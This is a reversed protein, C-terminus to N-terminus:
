QGWRTDETNRVTKTDALTVTDRPSVMYQVLTELYLFQLIENVVFSVSISTSVSIVM